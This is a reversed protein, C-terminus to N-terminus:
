RDLYRMKGRDDVKREPKAVLTRKKEGPDLEKALKGKCKECFRGTKIMTGCNECEIGVPSDDSFTLREERIWFQIQSIEVECAESIEPLGVSKNERVYKKVEQFKEELKDRCAQCIPPGLLYNFIKGCKRCNRVDM